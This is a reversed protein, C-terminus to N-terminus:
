ACANLLFSSSSPTGAVMPRILRGHDELESSNDRECRGEIFSPAGQTFDFPGDRVSWFM